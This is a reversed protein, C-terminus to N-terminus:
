SFIKAGIAVTPSDGRGISREGLTQAHQAVVTPLGTATVVALDLPDVGPEVLQLRRDQTDLQPMQVLAVLAPPAQRVAVAFPQGGNRSQGEWALGFPRMVDVVEVDYAHIGTRRASIRQLRM